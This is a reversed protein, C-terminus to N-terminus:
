EAVGHSVLPGIEVKGERPPRVTEVGDTSRGVYDMAAVSM